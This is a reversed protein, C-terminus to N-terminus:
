EDGAECLKLLNFVGRGEGGSRLKYKGTGPWFDILGDRATVVLHVGNNHSAFPIHKTRLLELSQERNRRRRAQSEKKMADSYERWDFDYDDM